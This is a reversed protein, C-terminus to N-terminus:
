KTSIREKKVMETQLHVKRLFPLQMLALILQKNYAGFKNWKQGGPVIQFNAGPRIPGPVQYLLVALEQFSEVGVRGVPFCFQVFLMWTPSNHGM